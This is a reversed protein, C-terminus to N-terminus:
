REHLEEKMIEVLKRFTIKQITKIPKGHETIKLTYMGLGTYIVECGTANRSEDLTKGGKEARMM